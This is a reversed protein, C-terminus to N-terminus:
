RGSFLSEVTPQFGTPRYRGETMDMVVSELYSSRPGGGFIVAGNQLRRGARLENFMQPDTAAMARTNAEMLEVYRKAQARRMQEYKQMAAMSEQDREGQAGTITEGVANVGMAAFPAAFMAGDAIALSKWPNNKVVGAARGAEYGLAGALDGRDRARQAKARQGMRNSRTKSSRGFPLLGPLVGGGGGGVPSDGVYPGSGITNGRTPDVFDDVGEFLFGRSQAAERAKKTFPRKPASVDLAEFLDGEEPGIYGGPEYRRLKKKENARRTEWSKKAASSRSSKSAAKKAKAAQEAAEEAQKAARQASEAKEKAQRAKTAAKAAQLKAAKEAAEKAANQAARAKVAKQVGKGIFKAAM